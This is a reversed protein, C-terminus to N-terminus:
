HYCATWLLLDTSGHPYFQCTKALFDSSVQTTEGDTKKHTSSTVKKNNKVSNLTLGDM